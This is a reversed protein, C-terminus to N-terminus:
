CEAAILYWSGNGGLAVIVWKGSEVNSFKNVCKELTETPSVATEAPPVGSEYLTITALSGKNWAATTKGLRVPEGSPTPLSQLRTPIEDLGRGNPMGDVRTITDRLKDRLGPGIFYREKDAM